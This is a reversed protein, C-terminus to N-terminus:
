GAGRHSLDLALSELHAAGVDARPADDVARADLQADGREAARDQRQVDGSAVAARVVDREAVVIRVRIDHIGGVHAHDDAADGVADRARAVRDVHSTQGATLKGDLEMELLDAYGIIANLPTRMEHSMVAMFKDKANTAEALETVKEQLAQRLEELKDNRQGLAVQGKMLENTIAYKEIANEIARALGVATLGERILWDLVPEVPWDAIRKHAPPAM